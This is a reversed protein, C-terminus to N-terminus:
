ITCSLRRIPTSYSPTALPFWCPSSCMKRRRARSPWATRPRRSARNGSQDLPVGGAAQVSNGDGAVLALEEAEVLRLVYPKELEDVSPSFRTRYLGPLLATM